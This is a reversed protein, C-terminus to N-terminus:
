QQAPHNAGDPGEKEAAVEDANTRPFSFPQQADVKLWGRDGITIGSDPTLVIDKIVSEATGFRQALDAIRAGKDLISQRVNDVTPQAARTVTLTGSNVAQLTAKGSFHVTAPFERAAEEISKALAEYEKAKARFYSILDSATPEPVHGNFV